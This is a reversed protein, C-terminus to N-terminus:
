LERIGDIKSYFNDWINCIFRLNNNFYFISHIKEFVLDKYNFKFRAPKSPTRTDSNILSSDYYLKDCVGNKYFINDTYKIFSRSIKHKRTELYNYDISFRIKENNVDIKITDNTRVFSVNDKSKFLDVPDLSLSNSCYDVILTGLNNDKDRVYTNLEFRTVDQENNLFLTSSCNYFNVSLLYEPMQFPSLSIPALKLTDSYEHIYNDLYEVQSKDLKFNVYTSYKNVNFPASYKNLLSRYTILPLVASFTKYFAKFFLIKM